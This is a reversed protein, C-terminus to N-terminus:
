CNKTYQIKELESSILTIKISPSSFTKKKVFKKTKKDFTKSNNKEIYNSINLVIQDSYCGNGLKINDTYTFGNETDKFEPVSEEDFYLSLLSLLTGDFETKKKILYKNWCKEISIKGCDKWFTMGIIRYVPKETMGVKENSEYHFIRMPKKLITSTYYLRRNATDAELLKKNQILEPKSYHDLLNDGISIGDIELDELNEIEIAFSVNCWMLGLFIFLCLKKM